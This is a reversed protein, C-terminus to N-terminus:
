AHIQGVGLHLKTALTDRAGTTCYYAKQGNIAEKLLQWVADKDSM